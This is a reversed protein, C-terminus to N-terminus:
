IETQRQEGFERMGRYERDGAFYSKLGDAIRSEIKLGRREVEDVITEYSFRRSRTEENM